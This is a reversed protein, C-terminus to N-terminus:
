VFFEWLVSDVCKGAVGASAHLRIQRYLPFSISLVAETGIVPQGAAKLTNQEIHNRPASFIIQTYGM